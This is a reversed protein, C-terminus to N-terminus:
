GRIPWGFVGIGLLALLVWLYLGGAPWAYATTPGVRYCLGVVIAIIMLLWYIFGVTM